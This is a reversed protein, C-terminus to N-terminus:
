RQSKVLSDSHSGTGGTRAIRKDKRENKIGGEEEEEEKEGGGEICLYVATCVIYRSNDLHGERM